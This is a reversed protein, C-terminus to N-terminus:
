KSVQVVIYSLIRYRTSSLSLVNLRGYQAAIKVFFSFNFCFDITRAFKSEYLFKAIAFM